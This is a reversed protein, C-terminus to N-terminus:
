ISLANEARRDEVEDRAVHDFEVLEEAWEVSDAKSALLADDLLRIM